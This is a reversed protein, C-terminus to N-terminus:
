SLAPDKVTMDRQPAHVQNEGSAPSKREEPMVLKKHYIKEHLEGKDKAWIRVYLCLGLSILLGPIRTQYIIWAFVACSAFSIAAGMFWGTIVWISRGLKLDSDGKHFVRDGWGTAIVAAFSVYTTSVPLGMGSAFAIVCASVALIVSARMPDYHLKKGDADRKSDPSITLKRNGSATMKSLLTGALKRSWGPTYLNVEDQQSATNVEARTVRQARKTMMGSFMLIGCGTLAWVPVNLRFSESFGQYWIMLSAIGPSACNALDNQGFAFAMCVMGLVATIHFLSKSGRTKTITLFLYTLLTFLSWLILLMGFTGLPELIAVKAEKIWTVHKMGKVVMFWFLSTLLFGSMWPGHLLVQQHNQYDHRLAGRFIRQVFFAFFGSLLISLVIASVVTALKPWNVVDTSGAVGLAGGALSFVLTATTSVPMGYLSYIYLLLTGTLNATIFIALVKAADLQSIDFIGKRVTDMVPSAFSAGLVVFIGALIVAIKRRLVRSGFVANVLNAADNSGVEVCSWILFPLALFATMTIFPDMFGGPYDADPNLQQSCLM